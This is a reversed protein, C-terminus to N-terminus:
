VETELANTLSNRCVVIREGEVFHLRGNEILHFIKRESAGSLTAAARASLMEVLAQCQPCFEVSPKSAEAVRITEVTELTWQIRQKM